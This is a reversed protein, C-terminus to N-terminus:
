QTGTVSGSAARLVRVNNLNPDSRLGIGSLQRGPETLTFQSDTFFENRAQSYHLEPTVLRRGSENVVVVNGIATMDGARTNYRGREATLLADRVGNVTYFTSRVDDFEIRTNDDFFYATDANLEARKVGNETLNFRAGYM